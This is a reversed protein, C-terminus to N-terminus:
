RFVKRSHTSFIVISGGNAFHCRFFKGTLEAAVSFFEKGQAETFIHPLDLIGRANARKATFDGADLGDNAFLVRSALM